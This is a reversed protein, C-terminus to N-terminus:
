DVINAKDVDDCHPTTNTKALKDLFLKNGCNEVFIVPKTSLSHVDKFILRQSLAIM